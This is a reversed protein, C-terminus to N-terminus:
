FHYNNWVLRPSNTRGVSSSTEEPGSWSAETQMHLIMAWLLTPSNTPSEQVVPSRAVSEQSRYNGVRFFYVSRQEQSDWCNMMVSGILNDIINSQLKRLRSLCRSSLTVGENCVFLYFLRLLYYFRLLACFNLHLSRWSDRVEFQKLAEPLTTFSPNHVALFSVRDHLNQFLLCSEDPALAFCTNKNPGWVASITRAPPKNGAM